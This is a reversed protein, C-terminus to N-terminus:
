SHHDDEEVGKLFVAHTLTSFTEQMGTKKDRQRRKIEAWDRKPRNAEYEKQREPHAERWKTTLGLRRERYDPNWGERWKKTTNKRREPDRGKRTQPPRPKKRPHVWCGMVPDWQPM